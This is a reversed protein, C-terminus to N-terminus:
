LVVEMNFDADMGAGATVDMTGVNGGIDFSISSAHNAGANKNFIPNNPDFGGQNAHYLFDRRVYIRREKM